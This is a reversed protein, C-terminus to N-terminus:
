EEAMEAEEIAMKEIKWSQVIEDDTETYVAVLYEEGLDYEPEDEVVLTKPTYGFQKYQEVSPNAITIKLPNPLETLKGDVLTYYKEEM